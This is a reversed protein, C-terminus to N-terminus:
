RYSVTICFNRLGPVPELRPRPSGELVGGSPGHGLAVAEPSPQSIRFHSPM